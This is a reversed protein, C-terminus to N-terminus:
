MCADALKIRIPVYRYTDTYTDAYSHGRPGGHMPTCLARRGNRMKHAASEYTHAHDQSLRGRRRRWRQSLCWRTWRPTAKGGLIGELSRPQNGPHTMRGAGLPLASLRRAAWNWYEPRIVGSRDGPVAPCGQPSPTSQIDSTHRESLATTGAVLCMCVMLGCVCNPITSRDNQM